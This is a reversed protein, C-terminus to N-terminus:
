TGCFVEKMASLVQAQELETLSPYFPLSICHEYLETACPFQHDALGLRRHLLEDVGRRVQVGRELFKSSTSEFDHNIRLTYRFLFAPQGRYVTRVSKLQRAAEHYAKFLIHRRDVFSPYRQLQSLGLAAQLDTMTAVGVVNNLKPTDALRRAHVLLTPDTTILMGGEGTTFCKTAHFSLIGLAGLTGAAQHDIELGFAQCADEIVPLGFQALNSVDCPHGFIHVAVIARTRPSLVKSVTNSTLVGTEDVDCLCPTAGIATVAALVSWCVYTPLVVEDGIGVGLTKLALGLAATGNTCAVGGYAGLRKAISQEFTQVREGCAIMSSQLAEDVACRDAVRIWPRSHPIPSDM